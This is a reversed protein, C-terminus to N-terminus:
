SEHKKLWVIAKDPDTFIRAPISPRFLLLFGNMLIRSVPTKVVAAGVKAFRPMAASIFKQHDRKFKKLQRLDSLFLTREGKQLELAAQLDKVLDDMVANQHRVPDLEYTLLQDSWKRFVGTGGELSQVIHAHNSNM